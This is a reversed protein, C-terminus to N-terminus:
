PGSPNRGDRRSKHYNALEFVGSGGDTTGKKENHVMVEFNEPYGQPWVSRVAGKKDGTKWPATRGPELPQHYYKPAGNSAEPVPLTLGERNGYHSPYEQHGEEKGPVIGAQQQVVERAYIWEQAKPDPPM